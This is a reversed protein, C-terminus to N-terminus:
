TPVVTFTSEKKITMTTLARVAGTEGDRTIDHSIATIKGRFATGIISDQIEVLQGCRIGPRFAVTYQIPQEGTGEECLYAKGRSVLSAESSLLPESIDMGKAPLTVVRQVVVSTM